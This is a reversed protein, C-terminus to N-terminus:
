PKHTAKIDKCKHGLTVVHCVARDVVKIGAVAKEGVYYGASMAVIVVIIRPDM